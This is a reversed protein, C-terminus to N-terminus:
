EAVGFDEKEELFKIQRNGQIQQFFAEEAVRGV